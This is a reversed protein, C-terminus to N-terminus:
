FVWEKFLDFGVQMRRATGVGLQAGCPSPGPDVGVQGTLGEAIRYETAIGYWLNLSRAATANVANRCVGTDLRLYTRNGIQKGATVSLNDLLSLAGLEEGTQGGATSVQVTNFVPLLRQLTGEVAGSLTPLLVGTVARVTQQSQGDLAFTPAGFVLLSIFESEPAQAYADDQTSLALTPDELTGGITVDIGVDRGDVGRVVHRARVDLTPNLADQPFFRVRGSDVTFPRNVVGLDLRYTGREVQLEGDLSLRRGDAELVTVAGALKVAAESTRVWVDNGLRVRVDRAELYEGLASFQDSASVVNPLEDPSLLARAEPSSLDLVTRGETLDLVLNARPVFVDATVTPRPLAGGMQISGSVDLDTGDRQRALQVNNMHARLSVAANDRLPRRVTATLHLTDGVRPGSQFRFERLHLSDGAALLTLRAGGPRIGLIQSYLTGGSLHLAGDVTPQAFTGGFTMNGYLYGDIDRVDAVRLPLDRLRVSDAVVTGELTETYIREGVVSQLRLDAPLQLQGRLSRGLTDLVSVSAELQQAAYNAEVRVESISVADTGLSDATFTATIRPDQRVGSLEASGSVIGPTSPTGTAFAAVEGVPFRDLRLSASVPQDNPVQAALQLSGGRNSVLSFPDITFGDPRDRLMLPQPNTWVVDGYSFRVSDSQVLLTDNGRAFQGRLSLRSTDRALLDFRLAGASATADDIGFNMTAIRLAGLGEVSDATAAAVFSAERPLNDARASGFLRGVVIEGIRVQNGAVALSTIYDRFSGEGYVSMNVDGSLSDAALTRVTSAMGTDMVALMDALRPLEARLVNLSDIQLSGRFSERAASDRALGGDAEFVAGPMTARLSDVYLAEQGWTGFGALQFPTRRESAPQEMAVSVAATDVDANTGRGAARLTGDIRTSPAMGERLWPAADLSDVRVAIDGRWDTLSDARDTRMGMWGEALVTGADAGAQMVRLAFPLSDLAGEAELTGRLVGRGVFATDYRSMVALDVPDFTLAVDARPARGGWRVATRGTVASVHGADDTWQLTLARVDAAELSASAIQAGGTVTGNVMEPLDPVLTRVTRLDMFVDTVRVDRAAPNVGIAVVGSASLRSRAGPVAADDFALRLTDIRLADLSGGERAIFRGTIRGDLEPPLADETLQAALSTHLPDFALAVDRLRFDRPETLLTVEGTIHSEMTTVDLSTVAIELHDPNELTRMRVEASARGEEPLVPWIWNIDALAVDPATIAADYRVPGPQGWNIVGSATLRSAPLLVRDTRFTLSDPYWAVEGALDRVTVPPDSIVLDATDIVLSGPTDDPTVARMDRGDLRAITIRRQELIGGPLRILEHLSDRVAIVSDREAGTFLPHPEWPMTIVMAGQRLVLADIRVDSGLGPEREEDPRDLTDGSIVWQLNFPGEFDRRLDLSVSDLELSRIRVIDALLERVALRAQVRAVTLIPVGASDVLQVDRLDLAHPNASRLQGIVLRGRGEFVGNAASVITQLLRARGADTHVFWAYVGGLALVGLLMFGGIWRWVRRRRTM